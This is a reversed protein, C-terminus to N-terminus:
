HLYSKEEVESSNEEEAYVKQFSGDQISSDDQRMTDLFHLNEKVGERNSYSCAMYFDDITAQRTLLESALELVLDVRDENIAELEEWWEKASASASEWELLQKTWELTYFKEEQKMSDSSSKM